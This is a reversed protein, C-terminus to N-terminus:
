PVSHNKPSDAVRRFKRWREGYRDRSWEVAGDEFTNHLTFGRQRFDDLFEENRTFNGGSVALHQAATWDLLPETLRSRGGHHPVVINECLIPQRELFPATRGDLDGPLLLRGGRHELLLVVSCANSVDRDEFDDKPPHLIKTDPLGYAALDDGDGVPRIPINRESLTHRLLDLGRDQKEFMYSSVLVEGIRFRETLAVVGNYHDADAHSLVVADIRMKGYRWLIRSMVDGARKPSSFCGIDYIVTRSQPTVILIGTGHGVSAISVTLRDSWCRELREFIGVGVGVAIWGIFLTAIFKPSPRRLPFFTLLVFAGYFVVNWWVPPGPLWYHGGLRQFFAIMELLTDFSLNATWGFINGFIPVAGFIMVAFGSLLAATLPLWLLPNVLLAIPTFLHIRALILPTSVIWITLSVLFLAAIGLLLKEAYQLSIWRDSELQEVDSLREEDGNKAAHKSPFRLRKPPSSVWLFAGTALFSLQAGFQFLETPNAALVILATACLTNVALSKRSSFMATSVVFVLVTARIAPPRVDTLLLYILVVGILVVATKRRSIGGLRLFLGVTAAVLGVHLGSIALIHLTGTELLTQTTEEDVGDRLGLIMATALPACRSNMCHEINARGQRRISELMRGPSWNGKEHLIVGDPSPVRLISLIRRCRLSTAVDFDDPNRPGLPKSLQGYLELRDGYRYNGCNGDVAVSVKGTVSIWDASDRLAEARFTFLTREQLPILRSPDDPQKPLFRPLEALMGRVCAPGGSETAYFGIDNPAFRNWQVHHRLGFAAGVAVLLFLTSLVPKETNRFTLVSWGIIAVVILGGWVVLPVSLFRDALIGVLAAGFVFPLPQYPTAHTM